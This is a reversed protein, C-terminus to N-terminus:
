FYPHTPNLQIWDRRLSHLYAHTESQIKRMYLMSNLQVDNHNVKRAYARM